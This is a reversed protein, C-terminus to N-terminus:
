RFRFNNSMPKKRFLERQFFPDPEYKKAFLDAQVKYNEKCQLVCLMFAVVRDYNGEEPDYAILEKLLAESLIGHLNLKKIGTADVKEELLWDKLYIECQHKIAETMHIGYGRQVNSTKIIDKLISPTEYLLHTCNKHEFYIKLGKLNNEYLVKANYYLCLKRAQEYFDTALEPRGTFEAVIIDSTTNAALFRKYIYISGLSPSFNANDQDYPDCGAVYLFPPVVGNIKEPEEWICVAGVKVDDAKLPYDRLYPLDINLRFKLNNSADFDLTGVKGAEQLKKNTEIESLWDQLEHIPFISGSSRLFAEKYSLPYQTIIDHLAKNNVGGRKGERTYLIEQEAMIQDSNGDKDVMPLQTLVSKGLRGRSARVFWGTKKEPNDPDDFELANYKGPNVFMEYFHQSGGEMSGASGFILATGTFDSGDKITPESMNYSEIINPFIGAEDMIFWNASLGVSAHENDKFTIVKCESKYGKWVSIGGTSKTGGVTERYQAKIFDRTDPNREKRFETHSNLFNLNDITMNMTNQSYNSLFASIVSKSDRYFTFEHTCLAAAKYSFGLRRPKVLIVNKQNKKAYDVIHFYDYDVDLFRPFIKRKRNTLEDKGLIQIFNLYFFHCGTISIGSSNTMGNICKDYVDKWFDEYKKTDPVLNTYCKNKEFYRALYCFEETNTFKEVRPAYPIDSSFLINEM